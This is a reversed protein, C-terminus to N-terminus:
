SRSATRSSKRRIAAASGAVSTRSASSRRSERLPHVRPVRSQAAHVVAGSQGRHRWFEPYRPQVHAKDKDACEDPLRRPLRHLRHAAHRELAPRQCKSPLRHLRDIQRRGRSANTEASRRRPTGASHSVSRSSRYVLETAAPRAGPAYQVANAVLLTRHGAAISRLGYRVTRAATPASM